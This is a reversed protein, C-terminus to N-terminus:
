DTWYNHDKVKSHYVEYEYGPWLVPLDALVYHYYLIYSSDKDTTLQETIPTTKFKRAPLMIKVAPGTLATLAM